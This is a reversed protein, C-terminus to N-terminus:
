APPAAPTNAAVAVGLREAREKITTALTNIRAITAPDTTQTKLDAIAASLAILLQEAADDAASNAAAATEAQDLADTLQSMIKLEGQVIQDLKQNMETLLTLVPSGREFHHYIDVRM